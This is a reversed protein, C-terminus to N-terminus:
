AYKMAIYAHMQPEGSEYITVINPHNVTGACNPTMISRRFLQNESGDPSIAIVREVPSGRNIAM